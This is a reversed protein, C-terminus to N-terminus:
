GDDEGDTLTLYVDELSPRLVELGVLEIGRGTAWATLAHVDATPTATSMEFRDGTTPVAGLGSPLDEFGTGDPLGFRVVSASDERGGLTDPTGEAVIRGNAIVAVRDALHQAEDM